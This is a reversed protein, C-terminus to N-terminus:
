PSTPRGRFYLRRRPKAPSTPVRHSSWWCGCKRCGPRWCRRWRRTPVPSIRIPAWASGSNGAAPRQRVAGGPRRAGGATGGPAAGPRPPLLQRGGGDAPRAHAPGHGPDRAAPRAAPQARGRRPRHGGPPEAAPAGGRRPGRAAAGTGGDGGRPAAGPGPDPRPDGPQAPRPGPGPKAAGGGPPPDPGSRWAPYGAVAAARPSLGLIRGPAAPGRDNVRLRLERGNQLNRVTVIAPLQLTRHAGVLRDPDYIEGNATSRGRGSRPLVAAM